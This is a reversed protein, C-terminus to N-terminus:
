HILFFMENYFRLICVIIILLILLFIAQPSKWDFYEHTHYVRNQYTEIFHVLYLVNFIVMYYPNYDIDSNYMKSTYKQIIRLVRYSLAIYILCQLVSLLMLYAAHKYFFFLYFGGNIALLLVLWNLKIGDKKGETLHNIANGNIFFWITSFFGFTLLDITIFPGLEKFKINPLEPEKFLANCNPCKIANVEILNGCFPCNIEESM